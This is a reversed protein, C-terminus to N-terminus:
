ASSPMRSTNRHSSNLRTSKRDLWGETQYREALELPTGANMGHKKTTESMIALYEMAMALPAAGIEAWVLQRRRSHQSELELLLERAQHPPVDALAKLGKRLIEEQEDNWQPWGDNRGDRLQWFLEKSPPVCKHIQQPINPYRTPAECFRAWVPKWLDDDHAALKAAGSLLGDTQPNFKLKSKCIEVFGKWENKDRDTQFVDGLDLWQLFERVLDGGTLLTNFYDKDLRKDKLLDADEDLLRYLSIQMASKTEKDLAVDLALGGQASQLFALITWDKANIQSWLVGRYQLEALPKLHEPCSEVARLDQRSVGPLYLIPTSNEPLVDANIKGAIVCRLWIAPGIRKEPLYDGLIFLGPLEVQLRPIIKEWQRDGDTWLICAPAVQVDPNLIAADRINKLLRDIVRM